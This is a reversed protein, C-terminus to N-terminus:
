LIVAAGDEAHGVNDRFVAFLERGIGHHSASLDQTALPRDDFGEELVKLTGLNGDVEIMDGDCLRAIPGGNAAEPCLHIAAPVKGSAGSMRGDTVLAVKLGRDQLVSLTPTLSHLEPMGKAKPGEFRVVVVTDETFEGRQFAEKVAYQDHFVRARAKIVRHEPAVASVKMVARGLNGSMQKLGGHQDFPASM